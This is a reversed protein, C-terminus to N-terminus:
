VSVQLPLFQALASSALFFSCIFFPNCMYSCRALKNDTQTLNLDTLPFLVCACIIGFYITSKYCYKKAFLALLHCMCFADCRCPAGIRAQKCLITHLLAVCICRYRISANECMRCHLVISPLSGIIILFGYRPISIRFTSIHSVTGHLLHVGQYCCSEIIYM